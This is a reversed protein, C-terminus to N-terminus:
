HSPRSKKKAAGLEMASLMESGSIPIKVKPQVPPSPQCGRRERSVSVHRLTDGGCSLRPRRVARPTHIPVYPRTNKTVSLALTSRTWLKLPRETQLVSCLATLYMEPICM